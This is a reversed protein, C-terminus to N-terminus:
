DIKDAVLKEITSALLSEFLLLLVEFVLLLTSLHQSVAVAM